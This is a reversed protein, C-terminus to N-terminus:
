AGPVVEISTAPRRVPRTPALDRRFRLVALTFIVMAMAALVLLPLWIATATIPTGRLMIGRSVMTFYSLPMCYGLWRVVWPMAALPFIM